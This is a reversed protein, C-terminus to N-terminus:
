NGNDSRASAALSRHNMEHHADLNGSFPLNPPGADGRRSWSIPRCQTPTLDANYKLIEIQKWGQSGTFINLQRQEPGFRTFALALTFSRRGELRYTKG